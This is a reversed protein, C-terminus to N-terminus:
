GSATLRAFTRITVSPRGSARRAIRRSFASRIRLPYRRGREGLEFALGDLELADEAFRAREFPITDKKAVHTNTDGDFYIMWREAVAPGSLPALITAKLWIARPREPDNARWFYSEVHGPAGRYRPANPPVRDADDRATNM